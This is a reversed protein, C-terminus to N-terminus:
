GRRSRPARAAASTAEDTSVALQHASRPTAIKAAPTKVSRPKTAAPQLLAATLERLSHVECKGRCALDLLAGFHARDAATVKPELPLERPNELPAIADQGRSTFMSRGIFPAQRHLWRRADGLLRHWFPISGIRYIQACRTPTAEALWRTKYHGFGSLLNFFAYRGEIAHRMGMMLIVLGPAAPALQDDFAIQLAYLGKTSTGGFTGSILGAVPVDDVVLIQVLAHMPQRADLLARFRESRVGEGGIAHETTSKWSREEVGLYLEFLAPTSAPDSSALLKVDGYDLLKRIQRRLNGRFKPSLAKFYEPLSNWRVRITYNDLNPWHRVRCGAFHVGPPLSYLTSADDQQQLELLSWERRRSNLYEYFMETVLGLYEAKAVIHPRDADHGVLFGLRSTWRWLVKESIEELALYGVLERHAFAVLFWVRSRRTRTDPRVNRLLSEYLEFTSFPDPHASACNLANINLRLGAIEALTHLCHVKVTYV